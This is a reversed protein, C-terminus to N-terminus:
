GRDTFKIQSADLELLTGDTTEVVGFFEKNTEDGRQAWTHFFGEIKNWQNKGDMFVRLSFIVPRLKDM